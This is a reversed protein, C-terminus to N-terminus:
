TSFELSDPIFHLIPDFQTSKHEAKAAKPRLNKTTSHTKATYPHKLLIFYSYKSLRDVVVFVAELGKSKPLRTIFDMSVEEWTAEPLSLPQLLGGSTTALYKKWQCIDCSRVFEQIKGKM